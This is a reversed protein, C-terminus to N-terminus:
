SGATWHGGLSRDGSITVFLLSQQQEQKKCPKKNREIWRKIDREILIKEDNEKKSEKM